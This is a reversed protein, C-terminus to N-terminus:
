DMKADAPFTNRITAALRHRADGLNDPSWPVTNLHNTDFHPHDDHSRNALVEQRSAVRLQDDILGAGQGETLLRLDFGADAAAPRFCNAFMDDLEPDNFQMAMFAWRSDSEARQLQEFRHWGDFTLRLRTTGSEVLGREQMTGSEVLGRKKMHGLLFDWAPPSARCGVISAGSPLPVEIFEAHDGIGSQRRGLWIILNNAQEAPNALQATTRVQRLIAEGLQICGGSANDSIRRLAHSLADRQVPTAESLWAKHLARILASM